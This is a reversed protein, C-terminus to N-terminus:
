LRVEYELMLLVHIRPKKSVYGQRILMKVRIKAEFSIKDHWRRTDGKKKAKSAFFRVFTAM